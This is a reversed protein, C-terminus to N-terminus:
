RDRLIKFLTEDEYIKKGSSYYIVPKLLLAVYKNKTKNILPQGSFVDVSINLVHYELMGKLARLASNLYKKKGCCEHLKFLSIIMDTITDQYTERRNPYLPFLGIRSQNQLWFDAINKSTELYMKDKFIKYCDCFLDIIPFNFTLAPEYKKDKSVDYIGYVINEDSILKEKVNEAWSLIAHKLKVNNTEGYVALLGNIISTNEKFIRVIKSSKWFLNLFNFKLLYSKPFLGHKKFFKMEIFGISLSEAIKLYRENLTLKYMDVLLEIYVGTLGRMIPLSKKMPPILISYIQNEKICFKELSNIMKKAIELAEHFGLIRYLEVLGLLLDTNYEVSFIYKGFWRKASFHVNYYFGDNLSKEIMKLNSMCFEKEGLYALFPIYDGFDEALPTSAFCEKIYNIIISESKKVLRKM